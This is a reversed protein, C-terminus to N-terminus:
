APPRPSRMAASPILSGSHPESTAAIRVEARSTPSSRTILPWFSQIVFPAMASKMTSAARVELLRCRPMESMKNGVSTFPNETPPLILLTPCTAESM